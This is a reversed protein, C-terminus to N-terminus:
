TPAARLRYSGSGHLENGKQCKEGKGKAKANSGNPSLREGHVFFRANEIAKQLLAIASNDHQNAKEQQKQIIEQISKPQQQLNHRKIYKNIKMSTEIAHYGDYGYTGDLVVIAQNQSAALCQIDNKDYVPTLFHLCM